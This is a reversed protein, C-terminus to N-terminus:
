CTTLSKDVRKNVFIQKEVSEGIRVTLFACILVPWLGAHLNCCLYIAGIWLASLCILRVAHEMIRAVRERLILCLACRLIRGGDLPYFPLLNYGLLALNVLATVPSRHLFIAALILNVGPGAVATLLERGYSLPGAMICAGGLGIRIGRLEIGLLYLILLHGLEHCLVASCFPWFTGCPDFYYYACLFALFGPSISIRRLLSGVKVSCRWQM